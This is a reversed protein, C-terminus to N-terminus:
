SPESDGITRSGAAALTSGAARVREGPEDREDPVDDHHAPARGPEEEVRECEVGDVVHTGVTELADDVAVDHDVLLDPEARRPPRRAGAIRRLGFQGTEPDLALAHHRHGDM